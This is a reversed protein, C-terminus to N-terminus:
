RTRHCTITSLTVINFQLAGRQGEQTFLAVAPSFLLSGVLNGGRLRSIYIQKYNNIYNTMGRITMIKWQKLMFRMPESLTACPLVEKSYLVIVSVPDNRSPSSPVESDRCELVDENNNSNNNANSSWVNLSPFIGNLGNKKHVCLHKNQTSSQDCPETTFASNSEDDRGRKRDEAPSGALM